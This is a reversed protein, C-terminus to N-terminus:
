VTRCIRKKQYVKGWCKQMKLCRWKSVCSIFDDFNGIRAQERFSGKMKKRQIFETRIVSSGQLKRLCPKREIIQRPLITDEKSKKAVELTDNRVWKRFM